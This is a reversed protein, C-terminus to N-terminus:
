KLLEELIKKRGIVMQTQCGIKDVCAALVNIKRSEMSINMNMAAEFDFFAFCLVRNPSKGEFWNEYDKRYWEKHINDFFRISNSNGNWCANTFHYLDKYTM